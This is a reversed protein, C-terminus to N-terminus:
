RTWGSAARGRGVLEVPQFPYMLLDVTGKLCCATGSREGCAAAVRLCRRGSSTCAFGGPRNRQRHSSAPCADNGCQSVRRRCTKTRYRHQAQDPRHEVEGPRMRPLPASRWNAANAFDSGCAGPALMQMSANSENRYEECAAEYANRAREEAATAEFLAGRARELAQEHLELLRQIRKRKAHM